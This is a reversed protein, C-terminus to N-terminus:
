LSTPFSSCSHPHILPSMVLSPHQFFESSEREAPSARLCTMTQFDDM